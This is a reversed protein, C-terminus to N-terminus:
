VNVVGTLGRRRARCGPNHIRGKGEIWERLEAVTFYGSEANEQDRPCFWTKLVGDKEIIRDGMVRWFKGAGRLCDELDGAEALWRARLDFVAKDEAAWADTLSTPLRSLIPLCLGCRAFPNDTWPGGLFLGADMDVIAKHVERLAAINEGGSVRFAFTLTDWAAAVTGLVAVKRPTRARSKPDQQRWDAIHFRLENEALYSMTREPDSWDSPCILAAESIRGNDGEVFRLRPGPEGGDEPRTMPMARIRRREVGFVPNEDDRGDAMGFLARLGKIGMEHEGCHDADFYLGLVQKNEDRVIFPQNGRRM